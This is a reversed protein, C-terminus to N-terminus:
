CYIELLISIRDKKTRGGVDKLVLKGMGRVSIKSGPEVLKDGKLCPLDDLSVRGAAILDAAKGRSLGFGSGVLADLRLSAVTDRREKVTQRPPQVAALPIEETSLKTRGASTLNDLVYPLIERTILIDCRGPAVCIDGVTERKIGLGMLSGLFDRHTLTDKEYYTARVAAVPSEESLLWTEDLYEPLYCCITREAGEYGGFFTLPLDPLMRRLLVQERPALFCTVGLISRREAGTLKEYLRAFLIRDEPTQAVRDIRTQKDM